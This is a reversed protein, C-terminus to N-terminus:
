TRFEKPLSFFFTSGKDRGKSEMWIDGGHLEIIKKSIYLGLGSGETIVDLGKGYREIKGFQTFLIETEKNDFGIGTDRISIVIRNSENDSKILIEGGPPTYKVANSILNEVVELLKEKDVFVVLNKPLDIKISHDRSKILGNLSSVANKIIISLDEKKKTIKLKGSELQASDLIDKILNELRISGNKIENLHQKVDDELTESHLDLLLNSFGKISVLPTKLEHSVRRLLESKLENLKKLRKESEKIKQKALVMRHIDSITGRIGIVEQNRYIPRSHIRAYFQNGEKDKMLYETPELFNDGLIKEMRFSAKGQYEGEIIDLIKLGNEIDKKNFGLKKYGISNLYTINGNVNIEFIIDPLLEVLERYKEESERLNKLANVRASVDRQSSIYSYIEGNEDFLPTVKMECYFIKGDKRKNRLINKYVNGSSVTKYIIQQLKENDKEANFLDPKKGKIESLKWGFLKEAAPNMYTINFDMDRRIIADTSERTISSLNMIKQEFRKEKTIDRIFGAIGIIEENIVVPTKRTEYIKDDLYELTIIEKHDNLAKLDSEQCGKALKEPMLEFDSKGIIESEMKGFFEANKKNVILYRLNKDKLFFMDPSSDIFLRLLRESEKIKKEYLKQDTIDEASCVIYEVENKQNLKPTKYISILRRKGSKHPVWEETHIQQKTEFVEINGEECIEAVEKPFIEYLNKFAMEEKTLGNFEAHANNVIGYTQQNTLYWVQTHINDLLIDQEEKKKRLIEESKILRKEMKKRENVNRTVGIIGTAAGNEDRLLSAKIEVWITSGDKCIHEAEFTARPEYEPDELKKPNLKEKIIDYVKEASEFTFLDSISQDMNEQLSFGRLEEVSPSLYTFELNMNMVWIVDTINEALLRYKRESTKLKEESLKRDAIDRAIGWMYSINNKDDFVTYAQLEVPFVTGDKHIYEKQYIGSYGKKLLRDEWIEEREWDHWNKPTIQYFNDINKLEELNYGLMECYAPNADIIKSNIDVMVFGDRSGEFLEKYRNETQELKSQFEKEKQINRMTGILKRKDDETIIKGRSKVWIYEGNKKKVRYEMSTLEEQTLFDKFQTLIQKLDEKHIYDFFKTGIIEDPPYGYESTIQPSVYEIKGTLDTKMVVDFLHSVLNKYKVESNRLKAQIKKQKTIDRSIVLGKIKNDKTKYLTGKSDLWVWHGDKHKFRLNSNEQGNKFGKELKEKIREKDDPHIFNFVSKNLLDSKDWGLKEKYIKENIHEFQFESNIISIFDNANEVVLEYDFKQNNSRSVIERLKKELKQIIEEQDKIDLLRKIYKRDKETFIDQRSKFM